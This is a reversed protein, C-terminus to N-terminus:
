SGLAAVAGVRMGADTLSKVARVIAVDHDSYLRHGGFTREPDLLAYRREWMRFTELPVGARKAAAGVAYPKIQSEM